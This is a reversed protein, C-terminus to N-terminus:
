TELAPPTNNFPHMPVGASEMEKYWLDAARECIEDLRGLRTGHEDVVDAVLTMAHGEGKLTVEGTRLNMAVSSRGGPSATMKLATHLNQLKPTHGSRTERDFKGHKDLNWLDHVLAVSDKNNNILDEGKFQVNNAKCWVKLHDKLSAINAVLRGANDELETQDADKNFDISMRRHKTDGSIQAEIEDFNKNSVINLALYMRKIKKTLESSM